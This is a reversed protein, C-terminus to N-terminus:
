VVFLTNIIENAQQKAITVKDSIMNKKYKFLYNENNDTKIKILSGKNERHKEVSIFSCSNDNINSLMKIGEDYSLGVRNLEKTLEEKNDVTYLGLIKELKSASMSINYNDKDDTNNKIKLMNMLYNSINGKGPIVRLFYVGWVKEVNLMKDGEIFLFTNPTLDESAYDFKTIIYEPNAWLLLTNYFDEDMDIEDKNIIKIYGKDELNSKIDEVMSENVNINSNNDLNDYEFAYLNQIKLAASLFLLENLDLKFEM